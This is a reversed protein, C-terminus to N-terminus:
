KFRKFLEKPSLPAPYDPCQYLYEGNYQHGDHNYTVICGLTKGSSASEIKLTHPRFTAPNKKFDGAGRYAVKGGAEFTLQAGQYSSAFIKFEERIVHRKSLQGDNILQIFPETNRTGFIMTCSKHESISYYQCEKYLEKIEVMSLKLKAKFVIGLLTPIAISSLFGIIVIVVMLETLTFGSQTSKHSCYIM